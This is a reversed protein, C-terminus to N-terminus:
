RYHTQAGMSGRYGCTLEIDSDFKWGHQAPKSHERDWVSLSKPSVKSDNHIKSVSRQSVAVDLSRRARADSISSEFKLM